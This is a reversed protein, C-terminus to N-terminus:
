WVCHTSGKSIGKSPRWQMTVAGGCLEESGSPSTSSATGAEMEVDLRRLDLCIGLSISFISAGVQGVSKWLEWQNPWTESSAINL